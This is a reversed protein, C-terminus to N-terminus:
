CSFLQRMEQENLKSLFNEGPQIVADIMERKKQQLEYIKEELTNKTILKYVQVPNQQGIRYARDSAQDEVAPNWWPDYHIVVDAGTLNLGTGGAKLSLLFISKEGANFNNVLDLRDRSKTGGDLYHYPLQRSDLEQRILRLMETFQSFILIRHNGSLADEIIELLLNLKGSGSSYNDIFLAPHCCIQRLRTLLALIKIQSKEFGRALIESEFEKKAQLLWALYLKAQEPVMESSLKTETKEPLEKLVTKKLRRLIFPSVHRRLEQMADNDGNKVIPLEFRQTFTKHSHLYGPLVFDFLSWLETLTNEIPTGTLAFRADARVHKVTKANLTHPNKVHQAEDLICYRFHQHEYAQIDRKLLGYSTIILDANALNQLQERREKQNGSVIVTKLTPAFKDAEEQWNYVLSTPSIVLSPAGGATKEALLLTLIQLTKGLGMDDALIGGFGYSVLSMLWKYGVKQYERLQGHIGVPIPFELDQPEKIDQVLRKFPLSREIHFDEAERALSDLYMARYQPLEISAKGLDAASLELQDILQAATRFEASDLTIFGGDSLRHYKKKQRYSELLDLMEAFPIDEYHLSLELLNSEQNLRVGASIRGPPRVRINRFEDSYYVEALKKLEPLGSQLFDFLQDEDTLMLGAPQPTFGHQSFLALLRTEAVSDRLLLRGPLEAPAAPNPDTPKIIIDGYAFEIRASISDNTKDLYVSIALPEKHFGQYFNAATEITAIKELSPLMAAFFDSASSEALSVVPRGQQGFYQLLPAIHRSFESDPHFISQQHFLYHYDVDLGHLIDNKLLLEMQIGGNTRTLKLRVPPRESRIRIDTLTNGNIMATFPTDAMLSFFRVLTTNTLRLHRPDPFAGIPSHYHDWSQRQLEETHVSVLLDFLQQSKADFRMEQPRLTFSKGFTLDSKEEWAALLKPIDRVVYTRNQGIQFSLYHMKRQHYYQYDYVPLLSIPESSLTNIAAGDATVPALFHALLKQVAPDNRRPRDVVNHDSDGQAQIAKLVAIIHKCAGHSLQDFAPCNCSYDVLERQADFDAAVTYTRSGKVRAVFRRERAIFGLQLVRSERHYVCGKHYAGPYAALAAIQKETLM